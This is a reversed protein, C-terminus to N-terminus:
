FALKQLGDIPVIEEIKYCDSINYFVETTMENCETDIVETHHFNKGLYGKSIEEVYKIANEKNEFFYNTPEFSPYAWNERQQLELIQYM